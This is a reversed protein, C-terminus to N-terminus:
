ACISAGSILSLALELACPPTYKCVTSDVDPPSQVYYIRCLTFDVSPSIFLVCPSSYVHHLTNVTYRVYPTWVVHFICVTPNPYIYPFVYMHYIKYQHSICM